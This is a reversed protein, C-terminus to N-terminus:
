KRGTKLKAEYCKSCLFDTSETGYFDCGKRMCPRSGVDRPMSKAAKSEQSKAPQASKLPPQPSTPPQTSPSQPSHPAQLPWFGPQHAPQPSVSAGVTSQHLQQSAVKASRVIQPSRPPQSAAQSPTQRYAGVGPQLQHIGQVLQSIAGPREERGAPRNAYGQPRVNLQNVLVTSEVPADLQYGYQYSAPRTSTLSAMLQQHYHPQARLAQPIPNSKTHSLPNQFVNLHVPQQNYRRYVEPSPQRNQYLQEQGNYGRGVPDEHYFGRTNAAPEDWNRPPSLRSAALKEQQRNEEKLLRKLRREEEFREKAKDIYNKIMEEQLQHRRESMKAGAIIAPDELEAMTIAGIKREPLPVKRDGSWSGNKSKELKAFHKLKRGFSNRGKDSKHLEVSDLRSIKAKGKLGNSTATPSQQGERERSDDRGSGPDIPVKVLTLYQHLLKLKDATSLSKDPQSGAKSTSGWQWTPGPDVAFHVPLLKHYCDTIPIVVPLPNSSGNQSDYDELDHEMPVLASFHATDYTLVLPSAECSRHPVELPLYIGGFSIPAFAEGDAGRLMTDSVVIIPRRLIHALVFVHFEELSEYTLEEGNDTPTPPKDESLTPLSSRSSGTLPARPEASALRLMSKWEKEWEEESYVLGSKQNVETQQWRWRRKLKQMRPSRPNETLTHYLAKRLTLQRDHFGWMGLSAAHLLCNGDGTTAMPWLRSCANGEAWWNLRGANELNAMTTMELLDKEMFARFEAPFVALDPLIFTYMPTDVLYHAHDQEDETVRKRGLDVLACNAKSIGRQLKKTPAPSRAPADKEDKPLSLKLDTSRQSSVERGTDGPSPPDGSQSSPSGVSQNSMSSTAAASLSANMGSPQVVQHEPLPQGSTPGTQQHSGDQRSSAHQPQQSSVPQHTAPPRNPQHNLAVSKPTPLQAPVTATAQPPDSSSAPPTSHGASTNGILQNYDNIAAAWNWQKGALLDAALGQDCGTVEVFRALVGQRDM